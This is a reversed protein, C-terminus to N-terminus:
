WSRFLCYIESVPSKRRAAFDYQFRMQLEYNHLLIFCALFIAFWDQHRHQSVLRQLERLVQERLPGLVRHIIISAFQYDM